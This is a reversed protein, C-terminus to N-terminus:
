RELREIVEPARSQGGAADAEAAQQQTLQATVFAIESAALKAAAAAGGQLVDARLFEFLAPFNSEDNLAADDRSAARLRLFSSVPIVKVDLGARELHGRNLEVIRRWQPFLDIKTVVCALTPCREH